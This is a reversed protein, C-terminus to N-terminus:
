EETAYNPEYDDNSINGILERLSITNEPLTNEEVNDENLEMKLLNISSELNDILLKIRKQNM